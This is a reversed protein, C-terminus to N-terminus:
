PFLVSNAPNKNKSEPLDGACSYLEAMYYGSKGSRIFRIAGAAVLAAIDRKATRRTVRWHQEIDKSTCRHRVTVQQMFWAQRRNWAPNPALDKTGPTVNTAAPIDGRPLQPRSGSERRQRLRHCLNEHDAGDWLEPLGITILIIRLVEPYHAMLTLLDATRPLYSHRMWHHVTAASIGTTRGVQKALSSTGHHERRLAEMLQKQLTEETIEELFIESIGRITNQSM